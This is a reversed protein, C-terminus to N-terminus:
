EVGARDLLAPWVLVIWGNATAASEAVTRGAEESPGYVREIPDIERLHDSLQDEYEFQPLDTVDIIAFGYAKGQGNFRKSGLGVLSRLIAFTTLLNSLNIWRDQAPTTHGKALRPAERPVQAPYHRRSDFGAFLL